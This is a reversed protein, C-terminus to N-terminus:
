ERDASGQRARVELRNQEAPRGERRAPTVNKTTM